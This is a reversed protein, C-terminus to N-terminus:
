ANNTTPSESFADTKQRKASRIAELQKEVTRERKATDLTQRFTLRSSGKSTYKENYTQVEESMRANLTHNVLRHYVQTKKEEPTTIDADCKLFSDFLSKDSFIMSRAESLTDNREEEMKERNTLSRIKELLNRAFEFYDKSILTLGGCNYQQDISSCCEKLYSLDLMAEAHTTKMRDLYTKMNQQDATLKGNCGEICKNTEMRLAYGFLRNVETNQQDKTLKKEREIENMAPPELSQWGNVIATAAQSIWQELMDSLQLVLSVIVTRQQLGAPFSSVDEDFEAADMHVHINFWYSAKPSSAGNSLMQEFRLFLKSVITQCASDFALEQLEDMSYFTDYWGKLWQGAVSLKAWEQFEQTADLLSSYHNGLDEAMLKAVIQTISAKRNGQLPSEVASQSLIAVPNSAGYSRMTEAKTQKKRQWELLADERQEDQHGTTSEVSRLCSGSEIGAQSEYMRSRSRDMQSFSKKMDAVAAGMEYSSATAWGHARMYSFISEVISQNSFLIPVYKPANPLNLVDRAFAFSSVITLRMFNFTKKDMATFHWNKDDQEKRAMAAKRCRSFYEIHQKIELEYEDINEKTYQVDKCLFFENYLCAHHVRCEFAAVKNKVESSVGEAKSKDKIIALRRVHERRRAKAYKEANDGANTMDIPSAIQDLCGLESALHNSEECLTRWSYPAKTARVELKSYSTLAVSSQTLDTLRIAGADERDKERALQEVLANHSIQNGDEDMLARKSNPNSSHFSNNSAKGNHVSCNSATMTMKDPHALNSFQVMELDLWNEDDLNANGTGNTMCRLLRFARANNGGADQLWQLPAIKIYALACLARLGQRLIENGSLSGSNYHFELRKSQGYIDRFVFQNVQKVLNEGEGSPSNGELKNFDDKLFDIVEQNFDFADGKPAFGSVKGTLPSMRVEETMHMEDALMQGTIWGRNEAKTKSVAALGAGTLGDSTAPALEDAIWSYINLCSGENVRTKSHLKRLTSPSPTTWFSSKRYEKYGAKTTAWLVLCHRMTRPNIRVQKEHGKIKKGINAMEDVIFAAAENVKAEESETCDRGIESELLAKILSAKTQGKKSQVHSSANKLMKTLEEDGGKSVDIVVSATPESLRKRLRSLNTKLSKMKSRVNARRRNQSNPSMGTWNSKSEAEVRAGGTERKRRKRKREARRRYECRQCLSDAMRKTRVVALDCERRDPSSGCGHGVCPCLYSGTPLQIPTRDKTIAYLRGLADRVEDPIDAGDENYNDKVFNVLAQASQQLAQYM